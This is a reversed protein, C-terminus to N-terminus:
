IADTTHAPATVVCLFVKKFFASFIKFMKARGLIPDRLWHSRAFGLQTLLQLLHELQISRELALILQQALLDIPEHAPYKTGAALLEIRGLQFQQM